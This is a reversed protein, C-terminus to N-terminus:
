AAVSDAGSIQARKCLTPQLRRLVSTPLCYICYRSYLGNQDHSKPRSNYTQKAADVDNSSAWMDRFEDRLPEWRM